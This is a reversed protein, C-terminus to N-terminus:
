LFIREGFFEVTSGYNLKILHFSFFNKSLAVLSNSVWETQKGFELGGKKPHNIIFNSKCFNSESSSKFYKESIWHFFPIYKREIWKCTRILFFVNNDQKNDKNLIIEM